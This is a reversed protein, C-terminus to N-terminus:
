RLAAAKGDKLDEGHSPTTEVIPRRPRPREDSRRDFRDNNENSRTTIGKDNTRTAESPVRVSSCDLAVHISKADAAGGGASARVRMGDASPFKRSVQASHLNACHSRCNPLTVMRAAEM